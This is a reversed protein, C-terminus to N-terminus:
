GASRRDIERTLFEQLPVLRSAAERPLFGIGTLAIISASVMFRIARLIPRM